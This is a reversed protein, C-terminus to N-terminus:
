PSSMVAPKGEFQGTGILPEQGEGTSAIDREAWRGVAQLSAASNLSWRNRTRPQVWDIGRSFGPLNQSAPCLGAQRTAGLVLRPRSNGRKHFGGSVLRSHGTRRARWTCVRRQKLPVWILVRGVANLIVDWSRRQDGVCTYDPGQSSGGEIDWSRLCM